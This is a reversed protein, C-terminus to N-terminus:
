VITAIFVKVFFADLPVLFPSDVNHYNIAKNQLTEIGEFERNVSLEQSIFCLNGSDVHDIDRCPPTLCSNRKCLWMFFFHIQVARCVIMTNLSAIHELSSRISGCRSILSIFKPYIDYANWCPLVKDTSRHWWICTCGNILKIFPSYLWSDFRTNRSSFRVLVNILIVTNKTKYSFYVLCVKLICPRGAFETKIVSCKDHSVSPVSDYNPYHELERGPKLLGNSAQLFCINWIFM